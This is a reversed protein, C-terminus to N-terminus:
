FLQSYLKKSVRYKKEIEVKKKQFKREEELSRTCLLIKLVVFIQLSKKKAWFLLDDRLM